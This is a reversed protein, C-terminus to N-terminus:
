KNRSALFAEVVPYYSTELDAGGEHLQKLPVSRGVALFREAAERVESSIPKSIDVLAVPRWIGAAFVDKQVRVVLTHNGLSTSRPLPIYFPKNWMAAPALKQEGIKAGDMYVDCIGDVAGFFLALPADKHDDLEFDVAYWGVGHRDEGQNTWASDTRMSTWTSFDTQKYWEDRLGSDSPDFKFKWAVPLDQVKGSTAYDREMMMKWIPLRVIAVRHKTEPTNAIQEAEALLKNAKVVFSDPFEGASGKDRFDDNLYHVYELVKKGAKGYYLNCFETMAARSDTEPRWICKALMYARLQEFEAGTEAANQAFMGVVGNDVMVRINHDLSNMQPYPCLYNGFNTYYGWHYVRDTVKHWGKIENFLGWNGPHTQSDLPFGNHLWRAWRIVVNPEPKTKPPAPMMGYALTEIEVNPYDKGIERAIRNVFRILTGGTPSGEEENIKRCADCQCYEGNDNESVSVLLKSYKAQAYKRTAAEVMARVRPMVVDFVGPNSLCLQSYGSQRKGNILSFYEPHTPFFEAPPVLWSFTHVFWPNIWRVGGLEQEMPIWVEGRSNFRNRVLWTDDPYTWISRYEMPPNYARSRFDVALTSHKPIYTADTALFRVGLEMELLDYVGYLTARPIKGLIFLSDGKRYIAFGEWKTPRLNAPLESLSLRNTDGLVIEPGSIPLYDMVISFRAGTMQGLFSSLEQAAFKEAESARSSVVIACQAKGNEALKMPAGQCASQMGLAAVIMVALALVVLTRM